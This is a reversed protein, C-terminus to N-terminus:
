LRRGFKLFACGICHNLQTDCPPDRLSRLQDAVHKRFAERNHRPIKGTARDIAQRQSTPLLFELLPHDPQQNM